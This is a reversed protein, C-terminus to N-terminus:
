GPADIYCTLFDVWMDGAMAHLVDTLVHASPYVNATSREMLVRGADVQEIVEHIVCGVKKYRSEDAHEAVRKQPDAGVLEPYKTILGPHLNYIRNEKCVSKPIIRMWGHLTIVCDRGIDNIINQYEGASPRDNVWTVKSSSNLLNKNVDVDGPTKNTVVADPYRGIQKSVNYIENGTHSFFAIWKNNFM